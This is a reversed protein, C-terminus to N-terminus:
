DRVLILLLSFVYSSLEELDLLPLGGLVWFFSLCMFCNLVSSLFDSSLGSIIINPEDLALNAFAFVIMLFILFFNVDELTYFFTAGTPIGLPFCTRLCVTSFDLGLYWVTIIFKLVKKFSSFHLMCLVSSSPSLIRM